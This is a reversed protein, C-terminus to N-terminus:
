KKCKQRKPKDWIVFFIGDPAVVIGDIFNLDAYKKKVKKFTDFIESIKANPPAIILVNDLVATIHDPYKSPYVKEIFYKTWEPLNDFLHEELTSVKDITALYEDITNIEIM